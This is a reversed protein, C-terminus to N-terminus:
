LTNLKRSYFVIPKNDQSIQFGHSNYDFNPYVLLIERSISEKMHEFAKQHEKTWNWIAQKSIM